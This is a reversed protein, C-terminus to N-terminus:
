CEKGALQRSRVPGDLVDGAPYDPDHRSRDFLRGSTRGPPGAVVPSLLSAFSPVIQRRSQGFLATQWVANQYNYDVSISASSRTDAFMPCAASRSDRQVREPESVQFRPAAHSAGSRRSRMRSRRSRRSARTPYRSISTSSSASPAPRPSSTQDAQCPVRRPWPWNGIEHLSQRRDERPRHRREGQAPSPQQARRAALGRRDRRLRDPRLHPRCGGDVAAAEM